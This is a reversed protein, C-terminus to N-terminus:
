IYFDSNHIQVYQDEQDQEVALYELLANKVEQELQHAEETDEDDSSRLKKVAHYIVADIHEPMVRPIISVVDDAAWTNEPTFALTVTHDVTGPVWDAITNVELSAHHVINMENYADAMRQPVGLANASTAITGDVPDEVVLTVTSISKVETKFLPPSSLMFWVRDTNGSPVTPLVGIQNNQVYWESFGTVVTDASRTLHNHREAWGGIIPMQLTRPDDTTREVSVIRPIFPM